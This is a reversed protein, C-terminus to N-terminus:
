AHPRMFAPMVDWSIETQELASGCDKADFCREKGKRGDM